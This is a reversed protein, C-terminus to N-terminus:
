GNAPLSRDPLPLEPGIDAGIAQEIVKPDVPYRVV